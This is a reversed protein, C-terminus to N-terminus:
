RGDDISRLMFDMASKVRNANNFVAVMARSCVYGLSEYEQRTKVHCSALKTHCYRHVKAYQRVRKDRMKQEGKLSLADIL